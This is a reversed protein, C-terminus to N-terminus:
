QTIITNLIENVYAVYNDDAAYIIIQSDNIAYNETNSINDTLYWEYSNVISLAEKNYKQDSIINELMTVYEGNVTTDLTIVMDTKIVEEQETQTTWFSTDNRDALYVLGFIINLAIIVISIRGINHKRM